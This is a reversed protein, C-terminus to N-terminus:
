LFAHDTLIDFEPITNPVLTFDQTQDPKIDGNILLDGELQKFENIRKQTQEIFDIYNGVEEISINEKGTANIKHLFFKRSAAILKMAKLRKLDNCHLQKSRELAEKTGNTAIKLQKCRRKVEKADKNAEPLIQALYEYVEIGETSNFTEFNDIIIKDEDETWKV